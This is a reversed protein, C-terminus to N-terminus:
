ISLESGNSDIYFVTASPAFDKIVKADSPARGVVVVSEIGTIGSALAV